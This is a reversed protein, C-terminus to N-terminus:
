VLHLNQIGSQTELIAKDLVTDHTPFPEECLIINPESLRSTAIKNKQQNLLSIFGHSTPFNDAIASSFLSIVDEINTQQNIQTALELLNPTALAM